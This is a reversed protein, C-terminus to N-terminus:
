REDLYRIKQEIQPIVDDSITEHLGRLSAVYNGQFEELLSLYDHNLDDQEFSRVSDNFSRLIEDLKELHESFLNRCDQLLEIQREIQRNNMTHSLTIKSRPFSKEAVPSYRHVTAPLEVLFGQSALIKAALLRHRGSELMLVGDYGVLRIPDSGEIAQYALRIPDMPDLRDLSKYIEIEELAARYNRILSFYREKNEGHQEWFKRDSQSEEVSSLVKLPNIRMRREGDLVIRKSSIAVLFRHYNQNYSDANM